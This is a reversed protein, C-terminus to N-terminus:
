CNTDGCVREIFITKEHNSWELVRRRSANRNARVCGFMWGDM